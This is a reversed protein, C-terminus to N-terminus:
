GGAQKAAAKAAKHQEDDSGWKWYSSLYTAEPDISPREALLGRIARSVTYETAGWFSGRGPPLDLAELAQLLPSDEPRGTANVLWTLAVNKPAVLAQRDALDPVEILATGRAHEPLLELNVAIAPLAALDGALLVWDATPDLRKVPGPGMLQLEDGPRAAELWQMAPGPPTHQSFDVTLEGADLDVARVTYSRRKPTADASDQGIGQFLLKVYGGEFNPPFAQLDPGAFVVRRMHASLQEIHKVTTTYSKRPQM